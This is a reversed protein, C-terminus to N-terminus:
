RTPAAGFGMPPQLRSAEHLALGVHEVAEELRGIRLRFIAARAVFKYLAAASLSSMRGMALDLAYRFARPSDVPHLAGRGGPNLELFLVAEVQGSM